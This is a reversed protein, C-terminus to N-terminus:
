GGIWHTGPPSKGKPHILRPTFSIVWRWVPWTRFRGAYTSRMHVMPCMHGWVVSVLCVITRLQKPILPCRFYKTIWARFKLPLTRYTFLSYSYTAEAVFHFLFINGQISQLHKFKEITGLLRIIQKHRWMPMHDTTTHPRTLQTLM